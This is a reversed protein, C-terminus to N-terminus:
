PCLSLRVVRGRGLQCPDAGGVGTPSHGCSGWTMLRGPRAGAADGDDAKLKHTEAECCTGSTRPLISVKPSKGPSPVDLSSLFWFTATTALLGASGETKPRLFRDASVQSTLRGAPAMRVMSGPRVTLSAAPVRM